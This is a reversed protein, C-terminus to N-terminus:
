KTPRIKVSPVLLTATILLSQGETKVRAGSYINVM